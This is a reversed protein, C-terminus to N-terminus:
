ELLPAIARRLCLLCLTLWSPSCRSPVWCESGARQLPAVMSAALMLALTVGFLLHVWKGAPQESQRALMQLDAEHPHLEM